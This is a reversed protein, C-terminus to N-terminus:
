DGSPKNRKTASQKKPSKSTSDKWRAKAVRSMEASRQEANSKSWRSKGGKKGGESGLKALLDRQEKTLNM